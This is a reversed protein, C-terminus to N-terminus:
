PSENKEFFVGKRGSILLIKEFWIEVGSGGCRM